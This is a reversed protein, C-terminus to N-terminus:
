RSLISSRNQAFLVSNVPYRADTPVAGKTRTMPIAEKAITGVSVGHASSRVYTLVKMEDSSLAGQRFLYFSRVLESKEPYTEALGRLICEVYEASPSSLDTRREPSTFSYAPVGDIMGLCLKKRYKAGENHQIEYFQRASILYGRGLSRGERKEDLFASGKKGWSSKGAFYIPYPLQWARSDLPASTDTCSEIYKMFREYCLNSGYAIYWVRSQMSIEYEEVIETFPKTFDVEWDDIVRGAALRERFNDIIRRIMTCFEPDVEEYTQMWEYLGAATYMRLAELKQAVADFGHGTLAREKATSLAGILESRFNECEGDLNMVHMLAATAWYTPYYHYFVRIDSDVRLNNLVGFSGDARRYKLLESVLKDRYERDAPETALIQEYLLRIQAAKKSVGREWPSMMMENKTMEDKRMEGKLMEDKMMEEKMSEKNMSEGKM